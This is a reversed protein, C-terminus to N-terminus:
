AARPARQPTPRYTAALPAIEAVPYRAPEEAREAAPVDAVIEAQDGVTILCRARVTETM